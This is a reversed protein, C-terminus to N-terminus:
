CSPQSACVTYHKMFVVEVRSWDISSSIKEVQGTLDNEFALKVPTLKVSCKAELSSSLAFDVLVLSRGWRKLGM